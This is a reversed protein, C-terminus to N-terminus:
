TTTFDECISFSVAHRVALDMDFFAVVRTEGKTAQSVQDVIFDVPGFEGILLDAWNGYISASCVGSSTGKTLNKPVNESTEYGQGVLRGTGGTEPLNLLYNPFGSVKVTTVLKGWLSANILWGLSGVNANAMMVKVVHDVMLAWTPPGGNTGVVVANTGSVTLLGTPQNSAGTGNIAISDQQVGMGAALDAMVLAAVNPNGQKLALRSYPVWASMTKPSLTVQDFAIAGETAAVNEAVWYVTAGSTKRPIALNGNLNPLVTAGLKRVMTSNRLIDIFSAPDHHTAVLEAGQTATGALIATRKQDQKAAYIGFADYKQYQVEHPVFAGRAPRSYKDAVARSCELEFAAGELARKDGPDALHALLRAFSYTRKEGDSLGINPDVEVAPRANKMADIAARSFDASSKGDRIFQGALEHFKATERPSVVSYEKAMDLIDAVRKANVEGAQRGEKRGEDLLENRYEHLEVEREVGAEMVKIKMTMGREHTSPTQPEDVEVNMTFSREESAPSGEARNVGVTIDMPISGFTIEYPMWRTARLIVREKNGEVVREERADVIRYGVSVNPRIGDKIDDFVIQAQPSKSFRVTCRGKGDELWAKEVVGVHQDVDHNVLVPAGARLRSFDVAKPTHVLVEEGYWRRVPEESSFSFEVTRNVDDVKSAPASRYLLDSCEIKKTRKM